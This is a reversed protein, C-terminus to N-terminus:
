REVDIWLPRKVNNKIGEVIFIDWRYDGNMAEVITTLVVGNDLLWNSRVPDVWANLSKWCKQHLQRLEDEDLEKDYEVLMVRVHLEKTHEVYWTILLQISKSEDQIIENSEAHQRRQIKYVLAGEMTDQGSDFEICNRMLADVDVEQVTVVHWRGGRIFYIPSTLNIDQCINYINLLAVSSKLSLSVVYILV